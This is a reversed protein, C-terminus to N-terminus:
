KPEGALYITGSLEEISFDYDDKIIKGSGEMAIGHSFKVPYVEFIYRLDVSKEEYSRSGGDHYLLREKKGLNKYYKGWIGWSRSIGKCCM